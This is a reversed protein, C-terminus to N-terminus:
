AHNSLCKLDQSSLVSSPDVGGRTGTGKVWRCTVLGARGELPMQWSHLFKFELHVHILPPPLTHPGSPLPLSLKLHQMAMSPPVLNWYRFAQLDCAPSDPSATRNETESGFSWPLIDWPFNIGM